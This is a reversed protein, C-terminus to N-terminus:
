RQAPMAAKGLADEVAELFGRSSFTAGSVTDLDSSDTELILELLELIAAEGPYVSEEHSIIEIDEIGAHSIQVQVHITGRYGRGQGEYVGPMFSTERVFGNALCGAIIIAFGSFIIGTILLLFVNRSHIRM